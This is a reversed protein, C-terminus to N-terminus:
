EERIRNVLDFAMSANLGETKVKYVTIGATPKVSVNNKNKELVEVEILGEPLYVEKEKLFDEGGLKDYADQLFQKINEAKVPKKNNIVSIVTTKEFDGIGEVHAWEKPVWIASKDKNFEKIAEIIPKADNFTNVNHIKFVIM